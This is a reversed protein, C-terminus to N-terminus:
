RGFATRREVTHILVSVPVTIILYIIAVTFWVEFSLFTRSVIEQGVMTLDYIAITSVLASDKILSISQSALPPLIQMFTQPLIIFRYTDFVSLGLSYASEWQGKHISVIGGRIIESTYSGEFLSLSIVASVFPTLNFLPAIVFYTFFIQILLPTNRIIELYMRALIRGTFSSSLRLIATLSGILMSFILSVVSIEITVGLGKLLKGPVFWGSSTRTFLYAPIRYWQWKYGLNVSNYYFVFAIGVMLIIFQLIQFAEKKRVLKMINYKSLILYFELVKTSFFLLIDTNFCSFMAIKLFYIQYLALVASYHM